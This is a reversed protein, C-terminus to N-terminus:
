PQLGKLICLERFTRVLYPPYGWLQYSNPRSIQYNLFRGQIDMTAMDAEIRFRALALVGVPFLATICGASVDAGYAPGVVWLLIERV